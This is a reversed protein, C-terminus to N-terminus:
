THPLIPREKYRTSSLTHLPKMPRPNPLPPPSMRVRCQVKPTWLLLYIEPCRLCVTVCCVPYCYCHLSADALHGTTIGVSVCATKSLATTIKGLEELCIDTYHRYKPLTIGQGKIM